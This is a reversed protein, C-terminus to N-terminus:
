SRLAPYTVTREDHDSNYASVVVDLPATDSNVAPTFTNQPAADQIYFGYDGGELSWGGLTCGGVVPRFTVSEPELGVTVTRPAFGTITCPTDARADTAAAVTLPVALLIAGVVSGAIRQLPHTM